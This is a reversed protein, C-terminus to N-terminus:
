ERAAKLDLLLEDERRAGQMQGIELVSVGGRQQSEFYKVASKM